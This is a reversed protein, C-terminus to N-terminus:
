SGQPHSGGTTVTSTLSVSFDFEIFLNGLVGYSLADTNLDIKTYLQVGNHGWLWWGGRFVVSASCAEM